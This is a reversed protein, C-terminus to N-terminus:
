ESVGAAKGYKKIFGTYKTWASHGPYVELLKSFMDAAKRKEGQTIYGQGALELLPPFNPSDRLHREVIKLAEDAEGNQLQWRALKLAAPLSEPEWQVAKQLLPGVLPDLLTYRKEIFGAIYLAAKFGFGTSAAPQAASSIAARARRNRATEEDFIKKIALTKEDAPAITLAKALYTHAHSYDKDMLFATAMKRYIAETGKDLDLQRRGEASRSAVLLMGEMCDSLIPNDKPLNIKIALKLAELSDSFRGLNWYSIGLNGMLMSFGNYNLNAQPRDKILNEARTAAEQYRKQFQFITVIGNAAKIYEESAGKGLSIAKELAILAEAHRGATILELGLNTYARPKLPSKHVIDEFLTLRDRWVNNRLSTSIALTCATIVMGLFFIKKLEKQAHTPVLRCGRDLLGVVVIFFGLSPLYLRHEFVLELPIVSSEILLNLFFFLIGFAVVPNQRRSRFAVVLLFALLFFALITAPPNALSHSVPFDHDLNFRGPLPLALLSLYFIVVRLETFLREPLNFHRLAGTYSSSFAALETLALPLLLLFVIALILWQRRGLNAMIRRGLDPSIFIMELLLTALPLTATNEKSFFAALAALSFVTWATTRVPVARSTRAWVYAALASFYFLAALSTMRQVLYTVASAQVPHLAWLAAVLLSFTAPTLFTLNKQGIATSTLRLTLLYAAITALLHILINTRHFQAISGQGLLHDIAFSLMPIFRSRGFNGAHIQNLSAFSLNDIYVAPNNIFTPLDDLVPPANLTNSYGLGIFLLVFLLLLHPTTDGLCGPLNAKDPEQM